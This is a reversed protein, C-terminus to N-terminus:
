LVCILLTFTMVTVPQSLNCIGRERSLQSLSPPSPEAKRAPQARSGVFREKNRERQWDSKNTALHFESSLIAPLILYILFM